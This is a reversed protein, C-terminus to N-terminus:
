RAAGGGAGRFGTILQADRAGRAVALTQGDRSLAFDFLQQDDFDTIKRAPRGDLPLFWVNARDGPMTNVYVGDGILV